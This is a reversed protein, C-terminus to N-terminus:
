QNRFELFLKPDQSSWGKGCNRPSHRSTCTRSGSFRLPKPPGPFHQSCGQVAQPSAAPLGPDRRRVEQGATGSERPLISGPLLSRKPFNIFPTKAQHWDALCVARTSDRIPLWAFSDRIKVASGISVVSSTTRHSLAAVNILKIKM